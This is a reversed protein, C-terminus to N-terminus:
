QSDSQRCCSCACTQKFETDVSRRVATQLVYIRHRICWRQLTSQIPNHSPGYTAVCLSSNVNVSKSVVNVSQLVADSSRLQKLPWLM